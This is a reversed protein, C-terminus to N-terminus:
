GQARRMARRLANISMASKRGSRHLMAHCNPCVPRLDNLPDVEYEKGIGALDRLHHVHIFGRGIQGYLREFNMGCVACAVGHHEICAERAAPNREYANVSVRRVAGEIYRSNNRVEDPFDNGDTGQEKGPRGVRALHRRWVVELRRAAEEPIEHGSAYVHDWDYNIRAKHLDEISLIDRIPLVTDLLVDVYNARKRRDRFSREQYIESHSVGSAVIGRDRRQRLLFVRSGRPLTKRNGSSWDYKVPKGAATSRVFRNFASFPTSPSWTLLYTPM